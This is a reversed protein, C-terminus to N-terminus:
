LRRKMWFFVGVVNRSSFTFPKTDLVCRAVKRAIMLHRLGYIEYHSSKWKIKAKADQQENNQKRKWSAPLQLADIPLRIVDV